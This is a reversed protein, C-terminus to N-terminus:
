RRRANIAAAIRELAYPTTRALARDCLRAFTRDGSKAARLGEGLIEEDTLSAAFVESRDDHPRHGCALLDLAAWAVAEQMRAVEVFAAGGAVTRDTHGFTVVRHWIVRASRPSMSDSPDGITVDYTVDTRSIETHMQVPGDPNDRIADDVFQAGARVLINAARAPDTGPGPPRPTETLM